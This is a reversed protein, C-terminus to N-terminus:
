RMRQSIMASREWLTTPIGQKRNFIESCMVLMCTHVGSFNETLALVTDSHHDAFSNDMLTFSHPSLVPTESDGSVDRM